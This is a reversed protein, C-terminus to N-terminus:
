CWWALRRRQQDPRKSASSVMVFPLGILRNPRLVMLAPGNRIVALLDPMEPLTPPFRPRIPTFDRPRRRAEILRPRPKRQVFYTLTASSWLVM